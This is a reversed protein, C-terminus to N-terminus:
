KESRFYYTLKNAQTQMTCKEETGWFYDVHEKILEGIHLTHKPNAAIDHLFLRVCRETHADM